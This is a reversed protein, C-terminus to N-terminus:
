ERINMIANRLKIFQENGLPKTLLDAIMDESKTYEIKLHDSVARDRMFFYRIDIHKTRQSTPKNNMILKITSQNDQHLVVGKIPIKLDALLSRIQQVPSIIDSAAVLEAETSSKTVIKQKQSKALITGNGIRIVHGSQSHRSSTIGYSADAYAEIMPCQDDCELTLSLNKTQNLYHLIKFFKKKHDDNFKNVKTSLYNTPLSIDIRVRGSAYLLQATGSHLFKQDAEPLLPLDKEIFLDDSYPTTSSESVQYYDLLKKVYDDMSIKVQNPISYDFIMGLYQHTSGYTSTLEKYRERLQNEFTKITEIHKAAIKFDDVFLGVYITDHTMFNVFICEDLTSQQFGLSLLYNSVDEYWLKASEICGYLAKDLKVDVSGDSSVFESYNPDIELLYNTLQPSIRMYVDTTMRANLYAGTIDLTCVILGEKAAIFAIIFISQIHATPSSYNITKIQRHGGAVLRSKLSAMNEQSLKMKLFLKSPIVRKKRTAKKSVPHFVGKALMQQLEKLISIKTEDPHQALAQEISINMADVIQQNIFHDEFFKREKIVRGSRTTAVPPPESLNTPLSQSLNESPSLSPSPSLSETLNEASYPEESEFHSPQQFSSEQTEELQDQEELEEPDNFDETKQVIRSILESPAVEQDLDIVPPQSTIEKYEEELPRLVPVPVPEMIKHIENGKYNFPIERPIEKEKACMIQLKEIISTPMPIQTWVDQTLIRGSTLSYFVVSGNSKGTPLLSICDESREAMTNDTGNKLVQCYEGFGIRLDIKYDTRRGTFLERPSIASDGHPVLNIRSVVFYVLWKLFLNPLPFQLSHLISRAREKIFRIKRDIIATSHSSSLTYSLRAGYLNVENELSIFSSERDCIIENIHYGESRYIGLITMLSPKIINKSKNSKSGYSALHDATILDIPRGVSLLFGEGNVYMIDLLLTQIKEPHKSIREPTPLNPRRNVMKGKQDSISPGILEKANTIDKYTIPLNNIAGSRLIKMLGSDSECALKKAIERALLAKEKEKTSLNEVQYTDTMPGFTRCYIEYKQEFILTQGSDDEFSFFKETSNWSIPYYNNIDSFKLLNKKSQDSYYILVNSLLPLHGALKCEIAKANRNVGSLSIPPVERVNVLLDKNNFISIQAGSDLLVLNPDHYSSDDESQSEESVNGAGKEKAEKEKKQAYCDKDSHTSVKHYSCYVQEKAEKAEKPKAKSESKADKSSKHDRNGRGGRGRGRSSSHYVTKIQKTTMSPRYNCAYNYADTLTTFTRITTASNNNIHNHLELYNDRNLSNIFRSIVEGKKRAAGVAKLFALNDRFQQYYENIPQNFKQHMNYYKTLAADKQQDISLHSPGMRHLKYTLFWLNLGSRKRRISPYDVHGEIIEKSSISLQSSIVGFLISNQSDYTSKERLYQEMRVHYNTIKLEDPINPDDIIPDDDEHESESDSSNEEEDEDEEFEITRITKDDDEDEDDYIDDDDDGSKPASAKKLPQQYEEEEDDEPEDASPKLNLLSPAPAEQQQAPTTSKAKPKSKTTAAGVQLQTFQVLAEVTKALSEVITNLNNSQTNGRLTPPKPRPKHSAKLRSVGSGLAPLEQESYRKLARAFPMINSEGTLRNYELIPIKYKQATTDQMPNQKASANTSEAQRTQERSM